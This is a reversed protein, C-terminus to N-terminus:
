DGCTPDRPCYGKGLCASPDRCMRGYPASKEKIEEIAQKAVLQLLTVFEQPFKVPGLELMANSPYAKGMGGAIDKLATIAVTIANVTETM